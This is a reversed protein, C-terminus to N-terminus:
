QKELLVLELEEPLKEGSISLKNQTDKKEKGMASLFKEVPDLAFKLGEIKHHMPIVIKPEIQAIIDPADKVFYATRSIQSFQCRGNRSSGINGLVGLYYSVM